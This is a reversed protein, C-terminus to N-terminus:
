HDSCAFAYCSGFDVFTFIVGKNDEIGKRMFARTRSCLELGDHNDEEINFSKPAHYIMQQFIPESPQYSLWVLHHFRTDLPNRVLIRRQVVGFAELDSRNIRVLYKDKGSSGSPWISLIKLCPHPPTSIWTRRNVQIQFGEVRTGVMLLGVLDWRRLDQPVYFSLQPSKLQPDYLYRQDPNVRLFQDSDNWLRRLRIAIPSLDESRRCQLTALYEFGKDDLPSLPLSVNLGRNTMTFPTGTQSFLEHVSLLNKKCKRSIQNRSKSNRTPRHYEYM